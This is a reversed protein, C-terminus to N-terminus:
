CCSRVFCSSSASSGSSFLAIAPGLVLFCLSTPISPRGPLIPSPDRIILNDIGFNLGTAYEVLFLAGAVGILIGPLVHWKRKRGGAACALAAGGLALGMATDPKTAVGVWDYLPQTRFPWGCPRHRRHRDRDSRRCARGHPEGGLSM